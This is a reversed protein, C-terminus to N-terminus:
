LPERYIVFIHPVYPIQDDMRDKYLIFTTGDVRVAQYNFQKASGRIEIM